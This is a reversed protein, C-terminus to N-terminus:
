KPEKPKVNITISYNQGYNFISITQTITNPKPTKDTLGKNSSFTQLQRANM